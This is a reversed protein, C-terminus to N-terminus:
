FLLLNGQIFVGNFGNGLERFGTSTEHKFGVDIIIYEDIEHSYKIGYYANPSLGNYDLQTGSQGDDYAFVGTFFYTNGAYSHSSFLLCLITILKKM